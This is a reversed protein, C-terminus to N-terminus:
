QSSNIVIEEKCTSSEMIKDLLSPNRNFCLKHTRSLHGREIKGDYNNLADCIVFRVRVPTTQEAAKRRFPSSWTRFQSKATHAIRSAREDNTYRDGLFPRYLPDASSLEAFAPSLHFPLAPETGYHIAFKVGRVETIIMTPNTHTAELGDGCIVGKGWYHRHLIPAVSLAQVFLPAASRTSTVVYGDSKTRRFKEM